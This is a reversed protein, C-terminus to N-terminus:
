LCHLKINANINDLSLFWKHWFCSSHWQSKQLTMPTISIINKFLTCQRLLIFLKSFDQNGPNKTEGSLYSFNCWFTTWCDIEMTSFKILKSYLWFNIPFLFNLPIRFLFQWCYVSAFYKSIGLHFKEIIQQITMSSFVSLLSTFETWVLSCCNLCSYFITLPILCSIHWNLLFM